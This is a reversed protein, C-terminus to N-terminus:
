IIFYSIYMISIILVIIITISFLGKNIRLIDSPNIEKSLEAKSLKVALASYDFQTSQYQTTEKLIYNFFDVNEKKVPAKAKWNEDYAFVMSGGPNENPTILGESSLYSAFSKWMYNLSYALDTFGGRCWAMERYKQPPTAVFIKKHNGVLSMVNEIEWKLGQSKGEFIVVARCNELLTIVADKWKDDSSQLKISGGTPLYDDPDSLSIIPHEDIAMFQCIYEDFTKGKIQQKDIEFSRLFIIPACHTKLGQITRRAAYKIQEYRNITFYVYRNIVFLLLLVFLIGCVSWYDQVYWLKIVYYQFAFSICVSACCAMVVLEAIRHYNIKPSTKRISRTDIQPLFLKCLLWMLLFQLEVALLCALLFDDGSWAEESIIFILMKTSFDFMSWILFIYLGYLPNYIGKSKLIPQKDSMPLPFSFFLGVISSFCLLPICLIAYQDIIDNM